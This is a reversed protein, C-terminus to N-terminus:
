AQLLGYRLFPNQLTYPTLGKRALMATEARWASPPCERLIRFFFRHFGEGYRATVPDRPTAVYLHHVKLHESRFHSYLVSALLLYLGWTYLPMLFVAWGGWTMGMLAMPVTGLSLWFPLANKLSATEAAPVKTM